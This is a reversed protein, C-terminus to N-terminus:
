WCRPCLRGGVGFRCLIGVDETIWAWSDGRALAVMIAQFDPAVAVENRYFVRGSRGSHM